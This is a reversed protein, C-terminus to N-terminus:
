FFFTGFFNMRVNPNSRSWVYVVMFALSPGLIFLYTKYGSCWIIWDVVLLGIAGILYLFFFEATKGRFTQEELLRSHRVLFCMHLIYSLGFPGFYLFNTLLRWYEYSYFVLEFNLYLHFFRIFGMEVALTTLLCATMYAKTIMPLGKYWDM